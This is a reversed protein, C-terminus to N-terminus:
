PEFLRALTVRLHAALAALTDIPVDRQGREIAHLEEEPLDCAAALEGITSGERERIARVNHALVARAREITLERKM